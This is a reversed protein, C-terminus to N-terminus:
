NRRPVIVPHCERVHRAVDSSPDPFGRRDKKTVNVPQYCWPCLVASM